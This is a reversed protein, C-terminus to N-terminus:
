CFYEFSIAQHLAYSLNVYRYVTRGNMRAVDPNEIKNFVFCSTENFKKQKENLACENSM